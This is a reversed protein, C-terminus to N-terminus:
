PNVPVVPLQGGYYTNEWNVTVVYLIVNGPTTLGEAINADSNDYISSGGSGAEPCGCGCNGPQGGGRLANMEREALRSEAIANLKLKILHKM